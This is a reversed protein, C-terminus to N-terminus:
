QKYAIFIISAIKDRLQSESKKNIDIAFNEINAIVAKNASIENM